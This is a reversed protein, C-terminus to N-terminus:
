QLTAQMHKSGPHEGDTESGMRTVFAFLIHRILGIKGRSAINHHTYSLLHMSTPRWFLIAPEIARM